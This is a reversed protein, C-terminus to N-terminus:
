VVLRQKIAKPVAEKPNDTEGAAIGILETGSFAYNVALMVSIVATIGKPFAGNATLNTFLIAKHEGDFSVLGLMAGLGLIIFIIIAIVKISAFFSEAEAFSRVSLANIAFIIVAFLTAFVVNTRKSVLTGNAYGCRPIRDRACGDLLDLIAM